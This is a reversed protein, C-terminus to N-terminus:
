HIRNNGKVLIGQLPEALKSRGLWSSCKRQPCLHCIKEYKWKAMNAKTFVFEGRKLLSFQKRVANKNSHHQQFLQHSQPLLLSCSCQQERASVTLLHPKAPYPTYVSSLIDWLRATHCILEYKWRLQPTKEHLTSFLPIKATALTRAFTLLTEKSHKVM